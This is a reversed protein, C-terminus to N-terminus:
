RPARCAVTSLYPQFIASYANCAPNIVTYYFLLYETGPTSFYLL